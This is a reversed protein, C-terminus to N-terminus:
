KKNKYNLPKGYLNFFTEKFLEKDNPPNEEYAWKHILRAPHEMKLTWFDCEFSKPLEYVQKNKIASIGQLLPNNIVDKPNLKENYWMVIVDPNWDHIKEVSITAHEAKLVCANKTGATKLLEEVTSNSGSTETIGKAWMFYVKKKPTNESLLNVQSNRLKSAKILESARKEAGLLTGFDKIEKYVDDFSELFVAYVPIDFNEISNIAESQSAWIIVLDPKLGVIEEISIFDWNGPAAFEKNKIKDSLQSYYFHNSEDYVNAPIAVLSEQKQLMYIGSLGSEILCIVRKAPKKLQVKKGRFDTVSIKYVESTDNKPKKCATVVSFLVILLFYHKM